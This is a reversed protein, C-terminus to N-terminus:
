LSKECDRVVDNEAGNIKYVVALINGVLAAVVAYPVDAVLQAPLM